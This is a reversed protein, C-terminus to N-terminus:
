RYLRPHRLYAVHNFASATREAISSFIPKALFAAGSTGRRLQPWPLTWLNVAGEPTKGRVVFPNYDFIWECDLDIVKEGTNRFYNEPFSAFQLKDGMGTAGKLTIGIM